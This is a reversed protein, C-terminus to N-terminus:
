CDLSLSKCTIKNAIVHYLPWVTKDDPNIDALAFSHRSYDRLVYWFRLILALIKSFLKLLNNIFCPLKFNDM